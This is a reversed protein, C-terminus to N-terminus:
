HSQDVARIVRRGHAARLVNVNANGLSEIELSVPFAAIRDLSSAGCTRAVVGGNAYPSEIVISLILQIEIVQSKRSQPGQALRKVADSTVQAEFVAVELYVADAEVAM